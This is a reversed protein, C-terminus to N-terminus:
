FLDIEEKLKQAKKLFLKRFKIFTAYGPKRSKESSKYEMKNAIESDPLHLIFMMQYIVKESPKLIKLMEEHLRKEAREYDYENGPMEMVENFHNETSVAMKINNARKKTKAWTAYLPCEDCQTGSKTYSCFDGGGNFSCGGNQICPRSHSYYNNRLINSTQNSIITNLWNALPKKEDYLNLKVYIHKLLQQKVDDFDMYAVGKLLWKHRRKEIENEIVPYNAEFFDTKDKQQNDM